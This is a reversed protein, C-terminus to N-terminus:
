WIELATEIELDLRESVRDKVLEILQIVDAATAHKGTIFTNADRDSVEVDGIRTGQLGCQEILDQASETGCDKFVYISSETILQSSRRVIWLKQMRKTLSEPNEREFQFTADLVALEDLSSLRYSFSMSDKDRHVIDGARTLVRAQQVWNGIDFGHVGTNVHLAGGITGPIGVLNEPGSFGERVATSVFHSLRTGGSCKMQDDTITIRCFDPASLSIVLGAVGEDRVLINSGEGILRIPLNQSAFRNVLELLELETTPEAFYEAPGGIRLRTYPALPENERVIHELGSVISM